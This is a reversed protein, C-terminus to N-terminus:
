TVVRAHLLMDATVVALVTVVTVVLLLVRYMVPVVATARSSLAQGFLKQGVGSSSSSVSSSITGSSSCSSHKRHTLEGALEQLESEAIEHKSDLLCCENVVPLPAYQQTTTTSTATTSATGAAPTASDTTTVTGSHAHVASLPSTPVGSVTTQVVTAPAVNAVDTSNASGQSNRKNFLQRKSAPSQHVHL